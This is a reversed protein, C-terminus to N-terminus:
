HVVAQAQSGAPVGEARRQREDSVIFAKIADVDEKSLTDAFSDMGAYRFAGGYVIASFNRLTNPSLNWLNPYEAVPAGGLAHCRQCNDQFLAKGRAITAADAVLAPPTPQQEAPTVRPPLPTPGGGLKFVMLRESNRYTSAAWDPGYMSGQPGGAGAMVAIYQVGDLEYSIPAGMITSGTQIQALRRGTAADYASLTGDALGQFVLGGATALVGGGVFPLPGAKWAVRGAIPDWAKLWGQVVPPPGDAADTDHFPPFAGTEGQTITGPRFSDATSDTRFQMPAEFVHLYVLGTQPDLAMPTWAHGGVASPWVVKPGNRYDASAAPKPRGTAMDVGSTWTVPTYPDAKLLKGTRRDLVYFFGNKPAQMLVKRVQGNIRLDALVMPATADYDWSDNPTEQYWWKMRGTSADVAVISDLFLDDGGGADRMWSPHPGGNGFGLYALNLQPDYALFGWPAGGGGFAWRTKSGWTKRAFSVEPTEDPGLKPDGPVAYFRWALKGTEADYASVYGRAGMDAGANGVLVKDGAIVPAGTSAYTLKSDIFTSARWVPKGTKADIATLVGDVSATYVKGRWVAVGRNLADCCANRAFHGDPQPDYTWISKGTRADVAYAVGWPGSFYLVGDVYIPNSEVGRHTRGRVVFDTFDWAFGLKAMNDRNIQDLPSFRDGAMDRGDMLWQGPEGAALREADVWGPPRPNEARTGDSGVLLALLIATALAAGSWRAAGRALGVM